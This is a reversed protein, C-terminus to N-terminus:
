HSEVPGHVGDFDANHEVFLYKEVSDVPGIVTISGERFFKKELFVKHVCMASGISTM